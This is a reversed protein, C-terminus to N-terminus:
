YSFGDDTQANDQKKAPRPPHQRILL